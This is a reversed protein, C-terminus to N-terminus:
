YALIKKLRHTSYPTDCGPILKEVPPTNRKSSRWWGSVPKDTPGDLTARLSFSPDTPAWTRIPVMAKGAASTPTPFSYKSYRNSTTRTKPVSIIRTTPLWITYDPEPETFTTILRKWRRSGNTNSCTYN